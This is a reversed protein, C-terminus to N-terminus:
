RGAGAMTLQTVVGTMKPNQMLAQLVVPNSLVTVLNPNAKVVDALAGPDNLLAKGGPTDMMAGVLKSSAMVNVLEGNNMGRQVPEKAMFLSLNAPNKLYSVLAAESATAKKVTDRALFGKEVYDNNFLAALAKPNNLLKGAAKTLAGYAFGMATDKKAAAPDVPTDAAARGGGGAQGADAAGPKDGWVVKAEAGEAEDGPLDYPASEAPVAAQPRVPAPASEATLAEPAPAPRHLTWRTLLAGAALALPVVILWLLWGKGNEGEEM